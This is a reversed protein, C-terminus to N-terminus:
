RLLKDAIVLYKAFAIDAISLDFTNQAFVIIPRLNNGIGMALLNDRYIGMETPLLTFLTISVSEICTRLYSFIKKKNKHEDSQPPSEKSLQIKYCVFLRRCKRHPSQFITARRDFALTRYANFKYDSYM